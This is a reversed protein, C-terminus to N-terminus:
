DFQRAQRKLDDYIQEREEAQRGILYPALMLTQGLAASSGVWHTVYEGRLGNDTMIAVAYKSIRTKAGKAYGFAGVGAGRVAGLNHADFQFVHVEVRSIRSM